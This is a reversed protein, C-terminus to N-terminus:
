DLRLQQGYLAICAADVVDQNGGAARFLDPRRLQLWDAVDDKTANGKGIVAKKWSSVNAGQPDCGADYLAAQVAGSTFAQVMTSRVGARGVVPSEVYAYIPLGPWTMHVVALFLNTTHWASSCAHGGSTGLRKYYATKYEEDGVVAVFAIKSSAPDIGLSVFDDM